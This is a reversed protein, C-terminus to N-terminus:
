RSSGEDASQGVEVRQCTMQIRDREPTIFDLEFEAHPARYYGDVYITETELRGDNLRVTGALSGGWVRSFRVKKYVIDRYEDRYTMSGRFPVVSSPDGQEERAELRISENQSGVCKFLESAKAQAFPVLLLVPVIIKSM